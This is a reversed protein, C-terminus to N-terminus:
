QNSPKKLMEGISPLRFNRADGTSSQEKDMVGQLGLPDGQAGGLDSATYLVATKAVRKHDKILVPVIQSM